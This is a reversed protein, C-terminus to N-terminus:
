AAKKLIEREMKLQKNETRLPPTGRAGTDSAMVEFPMVKM